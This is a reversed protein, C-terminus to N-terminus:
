IPNFVYYKQLLGSRTVKLVKSAFRFVVTVGKESLRQVGRGQGTGIQSSGLFNCPPELAWDLV